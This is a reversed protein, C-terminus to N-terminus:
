TPFSWHWPRFAPKAVAFEVSAKQRKLSIQNNQEFLGTIRKSKGSKCHIHRSSYCLFFMTWLLISAAAGLDCIHRFNANSGHRHSLRIKIVDWANFLFIIWPLHRIILTICLYHIFPINGPSNLHNSAALPLGGGGGGAGSYAVTGERSVSKKVHTVLRQFYHQFYCYRWM